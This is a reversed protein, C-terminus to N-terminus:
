MLEWSCQEGFISNSHLDFRGPTGEQREPNGQTAVHYQIDDDPNPSIAADGWVGVLYARSSRLSIGEEGAFFRDITDEVEACFPRPDNYVRERYKEFNKPNLLHDIHNRLHHKYSGLRDLTPAVIDLWVKYDDSNYEPMEMSSLIKDLEDFSSPLPQSPKFLSKSSTSPQAILSQQASGNEVQLM